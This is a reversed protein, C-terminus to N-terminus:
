LTSVGNEDRLFPTYEGAHAMRLFDEVSEIRRETMIGGYIGGLIIFPMILAPVAHWAAKGTNRVWEAGHEAPPQIIDLKKCMIANVTCLFIVLIIGPIVTATFCALVCDGNQLNDIGEVLNYRFLVFECLLLLQLDEDTVSGYLHEETGNCAKQCRNNVNDDEVNNTNESKSM